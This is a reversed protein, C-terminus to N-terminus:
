RQGDKGEIAGAALGGIRAHIRGGTAMVLGYVLERPRPADWIGFDAVSYHSRVYIARVHGMPVVLRTGVPGITKASQVFSIGGTLARVAAGGPEHWLAAHEIEGEQGVIAAKGYTEIADARVGMAALLQVAMADALPRLAAMYAMLDPEYRGAFPNAVVAAATGVVLPKEAPPGGEHRIEEVSVASKRVQVLAADVSAPGSHYALPTM